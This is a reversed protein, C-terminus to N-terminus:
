YSMSLAIYPGNFNVSSYTMEPTLTDVFSDVTVFNQPLAKLYGLGEYGIEVDFHFWFLFAEYCLALQIDWHPIMRWRPETLLDLKSVITGLSIRTQELSSNFHARTILCAGKVKGSLSFGQGLLYDLSLGLEPGMGRFASHYDLNSIFTQAFFISESVAFSNYRDVTDVQGYHLGVLGGMNLRPWAFLHAHYLAEVCDFELASGASLSGSRNIFPDLIPTINGSEYSYRTKLHTWDISVQDMGEYFSYFAGVKYGSQYHPANKVREFGRASDSIVGGGGGTSFTLIDGVYPTDLTPQFYIWSGSIGYEGAELRVFFAAASLVFTMLMKKM